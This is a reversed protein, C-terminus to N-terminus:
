RTHIRIRHALAIICSSIRTRTRTRSSQTAPRRQSFPCHAHTATWSSPRQKLGTRGGGGPLSRSSAVVRRSASDCSVLFGSRTESSLTAGPVLPPADRTESSSRVICLDLKLLCNAARAWLLPLQAPDRVRFSCSITVRRSGPSVPAQRPRSARHTLVSWVRQM